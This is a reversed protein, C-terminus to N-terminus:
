SHDLFSTICETDIQSGMRGRKKKPYANVSYKSYVRCDAAVAVAWM